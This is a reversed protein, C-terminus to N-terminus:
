DTDLRTKVLTATIVIKQLLSKAKRVGGRVAAECRELESLSESNHMSELESLLEKKQAISSIVCFRPSIGSFQEM